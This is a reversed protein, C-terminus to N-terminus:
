WGDFNNEGTLSYITLRLHEQNEHFRSKMLGRNRAPAPFM